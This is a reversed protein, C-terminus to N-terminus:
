CLGDIYDMYSTSIYTTGYINDSDGTHLYIDFGMMVTPLLWYCAITLVIMSIILIVTPISWYQEYKNDNVGMM